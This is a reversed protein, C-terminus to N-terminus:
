DADAQLQQVLGQLRQLEALIQSVQEQRPQPMPLAVAAAAVPAAAFGPHAAGDPKDDDSSMSSGPDMHATKAALQQLMRSSKEGRWSPKLALRRNLRRNLSAKRQRLRM